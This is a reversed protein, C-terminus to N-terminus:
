GRCPCTCNKEVCNLFGVCKLTCLHTLWSKAENVISIMETPTTERSGTISAEGNSIPLSRGVQPGPYRICSTTLEMYPMSTTTM